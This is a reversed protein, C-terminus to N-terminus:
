GSSDPRVPLAGHSSRIEVDPSRTYECPALLADLLTRGRTPPFVHRHSVVKCECILRCFCHTRPKRARNLSAVITRVPAHHDPQARIYLHAERRSIRLPKFVGLSCLKFIDLDAWRPERNM